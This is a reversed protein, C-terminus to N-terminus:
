RSKPSVSPTRACTEAAVIRERGIGGDSTAAITM